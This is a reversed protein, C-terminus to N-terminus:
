EGRSPLQEGPLEGALVQPTHASVSVTTTPVLLETPFEPLPPLSLRRRQRKLLQSTAAQIESELPPPQLEKPARVPEACVSCRLDHRKAVKLVTALKMAEILELRLVTQQRYLSNLAKTTLLVESCKGRNVPGSGIGSPADLVIAHIIADRYKKFESFGSNGLTNSILNQAEETAGTSKVASKIIAIKGDMGNIRSTVEPAVLKDLDLLSSLIIDVLRENENYSLTVAGIGALQTKTLDKRIKGTRRIQRKTDARKM